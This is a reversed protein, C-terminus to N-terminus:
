ECPEADGWPFPLKSIDPISGTRIYLTATEGDVYGCHLGVVYLDANELAKTISYYLNACHEDDVTIEIKRM